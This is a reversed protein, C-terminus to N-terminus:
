TLNFGWDFDADDSDVVAFVDEGPQADTQSAEAILAFQVLRQRLEEESEQPVPIPARALGNLMARGFDHADIGRRKLALYLSLNVNCIFLPPALIHETKDVYAMESLMEDFIASAENVVIEADTVFREALRLLRPRAQNFYAEKVAQENEARSM